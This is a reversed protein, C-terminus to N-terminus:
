VSVGDIRLMIKNIAADILEDEPTVNFRESGEGFIGVLFKNVLQRDEKQLAVNTFPNNRIFNFSSEFRLYTLGILAASKKLMAERLDELEGREIHPVSKLIEEFHNYLAVSYSVAEKTQYTYAFLKRVKQRERDIRKQNDYFSYALLLLLIGILIYTGM